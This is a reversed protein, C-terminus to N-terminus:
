WAKIRKADEVPFLENRLKSDYLWRFAYILRLPDEHQLTFIYGFYASGPDKCTLASQITDHYEDYSFSVKYSAEALVIICDEVAVNGKSMWTEMGDLDLQGPDLNIFGKFKFKGNSIPKKIAM